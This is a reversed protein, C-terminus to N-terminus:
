WKLWELPYNKLISRAPEKLKDYPYNKELMVEDKPPKTIDEIGSFKKFEEVCRPCFCRARGMHKSPVGLIDAFEFDWFIGDWGNKEASKELFDLYIKWYSSDKSLLYSPCIGHFNGGYIKDGLSNIARAEPNKELYYNINANDKNYLSTGIYPMVKMGYKHIVRSLPNYLPVKNLDGYYPAMWPNTDLRTFHTKIGSLKTIKVLIDQTEKPQWGMADEAESWLIIEIEKPAKVSYPEIKVKLKEEKGIIKKGEKTYEYHCSFIAEKKDTKDLKIFIPAWVYGRPTKTITARAKCSVIYNTHPKLKASIGSIISQQLKAVDDTTEIRVFYNEEEKELTVKRTKNCNSFSGMSGNDFNAEFINKSSGEEKITIDDIDVVGRCSRINHSNLNAWRLVWINIGTPNPLTFKGELKKWGDTNGIDIVPAYHGPDHRIWVKVGTSGLGPYSLIYQRLGKKRKEERREPYLFCTCNWDQKQNIYLPLIKFEKPLTFVYRFDKIKDIDKLGSM